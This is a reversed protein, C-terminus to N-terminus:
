RVLGPLSASGYGDREILCFRVIEQKQPRLSIARLKDLLHWEQLYFASEKLFFIKLPFDVYPFTCNNNKVKFSFRHTM